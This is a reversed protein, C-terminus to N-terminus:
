GSSEPDGWAESYMVLYEVRAGITTSGEERQLAAVVGATLNMALGNLDRKTNGPVNEPSEIARKIDGILDEVALLPDAVDDKALAHLDIPLLTVKQNEQVDISAPGPVIAIGLQPDDPGLNASGQFLYLGADTAYGNVKQIAELREIFKELIAKRRYSPM